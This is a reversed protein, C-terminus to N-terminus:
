KSLIAEIMWDGGFSVPKGQQGPLGQRSYKGATSTDYSVYVGKTQHAKFDLVVWFTQPAKVPERFRVEVWRSEGRDFLSYPAGEQHVVESMDEGLFSVVFDESPPAATGYRAGHIRIAAVRARRTPLTFRIMEGSGGLSKKGDAWGGGYKLSGSIDRGLQAVIPVLIFVGVVVAGIVVIWRTKM